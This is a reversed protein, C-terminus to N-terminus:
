KARWRSCTYSVIWGPLIIGGNAARSRPGYSQAFDGKATDKTATGDRCHTKAMVEDTLRVIETRNAEDTFHNQFKFTRGTELRRYSKRTYQVGPDAPMDVRVEIPIPAGRGASSYSQAMVPYMVSVSSHGLSHGILVGLGNSAWANDRRPPTKPVDASGFPIITDFTGHTADTIGQSADLQQIFEVQDETLPARATPASGCSALFCIATICLTM